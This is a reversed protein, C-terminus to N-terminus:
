AMMMVLVALSTAAAVGWLYELGMLTLGFLSVVVTGGAFLVARGATTGAAVVAERPTKGDALGLRYRTVVFLAYDIGVGIGIMTVLSSAWDPIVLVNALLTGGALAVGLGFVAMLIPLGMALVSGFAVLLILAAALLGVGESGAEKNEAQQVAFGGLEVQLDPGGVQRAVAVMHHVSDVPLKESPVDLRATLTGTRGDAAMPGPEVASVHDVSSLGAALEALRATAAPSGAGEAARYVVDVTGGAFASLHDRLVGLAKSSDSGPVSYDVETKGGAVGALVSAAVLAAAWLALVRRRRDYSWTM